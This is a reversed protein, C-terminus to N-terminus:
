SLSGNGSKGEVAFHRDLRMAKFLHQIESSAGIVRLGGGARTLSNHTAILLGIGTSDVAEVLSLDFFIDSVGQDILQQLQPRLERAFTVTLPEPLKILAHNGKKEIQASTVKGEERLRRRLLVRNGLRNFVVEDAYLRYIALGRGDTDEKHAVHKRQRAWNFGSGGDEVSISLWRRGRWVECHVYLAPDNQSGHIVANNLSERLLMAMAFWDKELGNEQIWSRARACLEDIAHSTAPIEFRVALSHKM